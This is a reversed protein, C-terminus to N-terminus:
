FCGGNSPKSTSPSLICSNPLNVRQKFHGFRRHVGRRIMQMEDPNILQLKTVTFKGDNRKGIAMVFSGDSLPQSPLVTDNTLIIKELERPTQITLYDSGVETIRGVVGGRRAELGRMLFPKFIFGGVQSEFTEQEIKEAVTTYTLVVGGFVVFCILGVALYGFPKKYSLESKKILLGASFVLLILVVVLLYPFSELFTLFGESGFSLYALNDSARLYFLAMNFFLVALLITLAFASGIGLKEALFIYKSRLHVKGSSIRDMVASEIKNQKENM